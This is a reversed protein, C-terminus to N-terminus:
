LFRLINPNLFCLSTNDFKSFVLIATTQELHFSGNPLVLRSADLRPHPTIIELLPPSGSVIVFPM